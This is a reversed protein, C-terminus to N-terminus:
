TLFQSIAIAAGDDDNTTTVHDAIDILESVANGMAVSFGVNYLLELDNMGDGVAMVNTASQGTHEM